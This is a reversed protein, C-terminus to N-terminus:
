RVRAHIVSVNILKGNVEFLESSTFCSYKKGGISVYGELEYGGQRVNTMTRIGYVTKETCCKSFHGETVEYKASIAITKFSVPINWVGFTKLNGRQEDQTIDIGFQKAQDETLKIVSSPWVMKFTEQKM